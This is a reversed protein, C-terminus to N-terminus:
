SASKCPLVLAAPAMSPLSAAEEPEANVLELTFSIRKELYLCSFLLENLKAECFENM